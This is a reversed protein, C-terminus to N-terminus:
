YLICHLEVLAMFSLRPYLTVGVDCPVWPLPLYLTPSMIDCPVWQRPPYLPPGVNFPVRPPLPYLAAGIAHSGMTAIISIILRFM